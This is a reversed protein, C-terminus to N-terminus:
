QLFRPIKKIVHSISIRGPGLTVISLLIIFALLELEVGQNGSFSRIKKVYVIAGLMDIAMMSSAIRTLVGVALLAGGTLELLGVLIAMESPLGLSSLFPGFGSGFKLQSHVMFFVGAVLRLGFQTLEHFKNTRLEAGAMVVLVCQQLNLGKGSM